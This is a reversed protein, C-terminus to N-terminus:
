PENPSGSAEQAAENTEKSEAAGNADRAKRPKMLTGPKREEKLGMRRLGVMAEHLQKQLGDIESPRLNLEWARRLRDKCDRVVVRFAEAKENIM